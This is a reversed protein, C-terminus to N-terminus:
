AQYKYIIKKIILFFSIKKKKKNSQCIIEEKMLKTMLIRQHSLEKNLILIKNKTKFINNQIKIQGSLLKDQHHLYIIKNNIVIIRINNM